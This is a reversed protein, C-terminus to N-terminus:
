IFYKLLIYKIMERLVGYYILVMSTVLLILVGILPIESIDGMIRNIIDLSLWICLHFILIMYIVMSNKFPKVM